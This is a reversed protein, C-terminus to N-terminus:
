AALAAAVTDALAAVDEPAEDRPTYVAVGWRPWDRRRVTEIQQEFFAQAQAVTVDMDGYGRPAKWALNLLPMYLDELAAAAARHGHHRAAVLPDFLFEDRQRHGWAAFDAPSAYVEYVYAAAYRPLERWFADDGMLYELKRRYHREQYRHFYASSGVGQQCVLVDGPHAAGDHLGHLFDLLDSRARGSKARMGSSAENVVRPTGAPLDLRDIMAAVTRGRDFWSLRGFMRAVKGRNVGVGATVTPTSPDLVRRYAVPDRLGGKAWDVHVVVDGRPPHRRLAGLISDDGNSCYVLNM